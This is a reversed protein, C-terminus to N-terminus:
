CNRVQLWFRLTAESREYNSVYTSYMKFFPAADMFIKGINNGNNGNDKEFSTALDKQFVRNFALLQEINSFITNHENQVKAVLTAHSNDETSPSTATMTLESLYTRLPVVFSECLVALDSVYALETSLIEAVIKGRKSIQAPTLM